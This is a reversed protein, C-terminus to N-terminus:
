NLDLIMEVAVDAMWAYFDGIEFGCSAKFADAQYRRYIYSVLEKWDEDPILRKARSISKTRQIAKDVTGSFTELDADLGIDRKVNATYLREEDTTGIEETGLAYLISQIFHALSSKYKM